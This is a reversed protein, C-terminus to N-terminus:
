CFDLFDYFGMVRLYGIGFILLFLSLILMLVLLCWVNLGFLSFSCSFVNYWNFRDIVKFIYFGFNGWIVILM